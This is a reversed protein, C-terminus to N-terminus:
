ARISATTQSRHRRVLAQREGEAQGVFVDLEQAGRIRLSDFLSAHSDPSAPV